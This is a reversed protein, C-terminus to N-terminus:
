PLRKEGRVQELENQAATLDKSMRGVQGRLDTVETQAGALDATLSKVEKRAAALDKELEECEARLIKVAGAASDVIQKAADGKNVKFGGWQKLVMGVVLLPSLWAVYPSASLLDLNM